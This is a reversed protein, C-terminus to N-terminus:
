TSFIGTIVADSCIILFISIVVASTAARGVGQADRKARFGCLCGICAIIIAFMISKFLGQFLDIPMVIDITKNYYSLPSVGLKMISVIMGGIIGCITAYITLMPMIVIMALLKPVILMRGTSFGMTVMADIEESAQMSGIEAAFASGSRGAIVVAVMLPGLETVIVGGVLNAVFNEVGYRSLQVIAQFALIVGILFGLLSIIPIADSGCADMYYATYDWKIKRPNRAATYLAALVEGVFELVALILEWLRYLADGIQFFVSENNRTFQM